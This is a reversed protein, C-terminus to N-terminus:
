EDPLELLKKVALLFKNDGPDNGDEIYAFADAFAERSSPYRSAGYISFKAVENRDLDLIIQNMAAKQAPTGSVMYYDQLNHGFEHRTVRTVLATKSPDRSWGNKIVDGGAKDMRGMMMRPNFSLRHNGQPLWEGISSMEDPKPVRVKGSPLIQGKQTPLSSHQGFTTPRLLGRYSVAQGDYRIQRLQDFARPYKTKLDALTQLSQNVRDKPFVDTLYRRSLPPIFSVRKGYVDRIIDDVAMGDIRPAKVALRAAFGAHTVGAYGQTLEMLRDIDTNFRVVDVVVGPHESAWVSMSAWRHHGDLVFGEQSIYLTGGEARLGGEKAITKYIGAVQDSILENQTARLLRPDIRELTGFVGNGRMYNLYDKMGEATEPLQPMDVRPIDRGHVNFLNPEDVVNVRELNVKLGRADIERMLAPLQERTIFVEGETNVLQEIATMADVANDGPQAKERYECGCRCWPHGLPYPDGSPFFSGFPIWDAAANPACIVDCGRGDPVWRKELNERSEMLSYGAREYAQNTETFAITQARSKSMIEPFSRRLAETTQSFTADSSITLKLLNRMRDRTEHNIGTVLEATPHTGWYAAVHGQLDAANWPAPPTPVPLERELVPVIKSIADRMGAEIAPLMAAKIADGMRLSTDMAAVDCARDLDPHANWQALFSSQYQAWVRMIDAALAKEIPILVTLKRAIIAKDYASQLAEVLMRRLTQSRVEQLAIAANAAAFARQESRTKRYVAMWVAAWQARKKYPKRKVYAPLSPDLAGSYPM